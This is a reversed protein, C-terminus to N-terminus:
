TFVLSEGRPAHHIDVGELYPPAEEALSILSTRRNRARLRILAELLSPPTIATIIVLISGFAMHPAQSLLYREFPATVVPTLGALSELLLPLHGPSRGPAIRFALGSHAISGNSLLGVRYGQSFAEMVISATTSILVELMEPETGEWHHEFTSANLCVVLDLGRVPQFLRTQLEGLKATAPWHIKRFGDEPQYDRVGMPRSVDEFLHRRSSRDGFPDDPKLGLESLPRVEPFVVLKDEPALDDDESIFLGFPDGTSASVPGLRYIGRQRLLLPFSRITKAFGRMALILHFFGVDPKHSPSLMAEDAPGVQRPWRDQTRLWVLPLLKRNEVSLSAEVQEGPFGRRYPLSRRYIVGTLSQRNWLYAIGLVIILLGAIMVLGTANFVYGSVLALM